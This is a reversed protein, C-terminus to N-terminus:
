RTPEYDDDQAEEEKEEENEEEEQEGEDEKDETDGKWLHCHCQRAVDYDVCAKSLTNLGGMVSHLAYREKSTPCTCLSHLINQQMKLSQQYIEDVLPMTGQSADTVFEMAMTGLSISPFGTNMLRGMSAKSSPLGATIGEVLPGKPGRPFRTNGKDYEQLIKKWNSLNSRIIYEPHLLNGDKERQFLLPRLAAYIYGNARTFYRTYRKRVGPPTYFLASLQAENLQVNTSPLDAECYQHLRSPSPAQTKDPQNIVSKDEPMIQSKSEEMEINQTTPTSTRPLTPTPTLTPDIALLGSELAQSNPQGSGALVDASSQIISTNMEISSAADKDTPASTPEKDQHEM